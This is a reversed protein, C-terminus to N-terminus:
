QTVPWPCCSSFPLSPAIITGAERTERLSGEGARLERAETSLTEPRANRPERVLLALALTVFTYRQFKCSVFQTCLTSTWIFLGLGM